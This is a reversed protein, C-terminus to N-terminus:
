DNVQLKEMWYSSRDGKKLVPLSAVQVCLPARCMHEQANCV